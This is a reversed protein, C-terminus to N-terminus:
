NSIIFGQQAQYTILQQMAAEAEADNLYTRIQMQGKTGTKGFRMSIRNGARTINWFKDGAASVLEAANGSTAASSPAAGETGATKELGAKTEPMKNELALLVTQLVEEKNELWDKTYVNIVQWGFNQLIAPRLYYQEIVDKNLYHLDDDVLIGLNYATDNKDRKIALACKFSSQGIAEGVVFGRAELEAKLQTATATFAPTNAMAARGSNIVLGDLINGAQQMNGESVMEAYHLFRKLYSAGENYDNTIHQHKISSIVAMHKRARSFIVNLRKEGGKRNVPGFNMLMKGQRDHGYCVSMIIIDREDGQVNELNKVFLGTFQGDEKRNWAKELLTDFNKDLDALSELEEKIVSQQEQSFAVIGISDSTKSLLLERIIVAIYRAEDRNSRKEYVSQPLYHFSMSNNLLRGANAAGQQPQLVEIAPNNSNYLNRDPVTLLNANYFAHNSYSILTEYRSRYHWKLMANHLKRTGQVLLSDAEISIIEEETEGDFLELDNPDEVKANFFQSPPMQKDDGVIITQPARFLAPVGEELPIQSAEDFIVVDFFGADLPLSDSVSLPSMLWVPKLDKLVRGSENSALTRISKYQKTKAMEHELVKRGEAYEKKFAKQEADLKSATTNSLQYNNLFDQRRVARIYDSNLQLLKNYGSELERVTDKLSWHNTDAFVPNRSLLLQLTKNALAAETQQPTLPIKRILEQLDAPLAALKKLAPMLERLVDANSQITALEDRLQNLSKSEYNYLCQKLQMELQHLMNNLMSLQHVLENAEPHQLLFNIAPDNKKRRLVDIGIYVTNLNEVGYEQQVAQLYNNLQELAKYEEQLQQLVSTFSPPIHHASFSYAQKLQKKLHRWSGSFFNWFSNEHKGAIYLAQETEQKSFKYRWNTNIKLAAEYQKRLVQQQKHAQEFAAAEPTDPNVIQLNRNRAVPAMVAADKLLNSLAAFSDYFLPPVQYHHMIQSLQEIINFSHASLNELLSFPNEATIVTNALNSCPHGALEPGAGSRELAESLQSIAQGFQQWENYVPLPMGPDLDPIHPQLKLAKELLARMSIGAEPLLTTQQEHYAQLLQLQDNFRELTAKRDLAIMHLDMPHQLFNDYVTKLDKIFEKKDGQSDHIYCCLEALRTQQLRHFVVDLAARKECVFLINKGQALFDAILNTITQSKGTGPPGQIVYSHGSRSYLVANTQTPDAAVVHYWQAPSLTINVAPQQRPESGFLEDFVPHAMNQEAVKAYDSVLSMKKYNFNGLVLNCSDVDWSYPNIAPEPLNALEAPLEPLPLQKEKLAAYQGPLAASQKIRQRKAYQRITQLAMAHAGPAQPKDRFTLIVGQALTDIKAKLGQFFTELSMEELDISEPLELGYLDKLFHALVPNVIANNDTIELTFRQEKLAKSRKLKVPLLLLPSQIREKPDEKFNNWHLFAIVLRLQSFGYEKEDSEAELRINNLQADLYLHDEFCLYKNLSLDKLGTVHAAITNNWYFLTETKILAAQKVAPVSGITLNIFRSNPKYFLLRNRRSTDFLRNRLKGLIFAKRHAPQKVQLLAEGALDEQKQPDYDRYFRLRQICDALDRCREARDLETMEAALAALAPHIRENLGAPQNRFAIFRELETMHYLNLGMMVSAMIQGLCFIDSLADHRGANIEASQYAPLYQLPTPIAKANAAVPPSPPHSCNDAIYLQNDLVRLNSATHEFAAVQGAQHFLLVKEFLPLVFAVVEDNAWSGNKFAAPLYQQFSIDPM